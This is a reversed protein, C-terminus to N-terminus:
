PVIISADRGVQDIWRERKKYLTKWLSGGAQPQVPGSLRSSTTPHVGRKGDQRTYTPPYRTKQFWFADAKSWFLCSTPNFM